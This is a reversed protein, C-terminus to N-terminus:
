KGKIPSGRGGVRQSEQDRILQAIQIEDKDLRDLLARVEFRQYDSQNRM